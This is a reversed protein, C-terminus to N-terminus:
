LSWMKMFVGWKNNIKFIRDVLTHVLKTKFEYPVFSRFNTMLGTFTPKHYVSTKTDNKNDIKIDLFNLINDVNTEMTFKINSHRSNLYQLFDSAENQNQFVAFIDDVYRRYFLPGARGGNNKYENLWNKEHYGLFLNALIPALPSGM